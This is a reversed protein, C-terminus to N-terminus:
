SYRSGKKIVAEFDKNDWPEVAVDVVRDQLDGNFQNLRNRERWIGLIIFRIDLDQFIRLDFALQKQVDESLYHFNDLIIYKQFKISKLLEAVDQSLDLNYEM